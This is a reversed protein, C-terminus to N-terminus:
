NRLEIRLHSISFKQGGRSGHVTFGFTSPVDDTVITNWEVGPLPSYRDTDANYEMQFAWPEKRLLTKQWSQEHRHLRAEGNQSMDYVLLIPDRLAQSHAVIEFWPLGVAEVTGSVVAHHLGVPFFVETADIWGNAANYGPYNWVLKDGEVAWWGGRDLGRCSKRSFEAFVDLAEQPSLDLKREKMLRRGLNLARRCRDVEAIEDPDAPQLLGLTTEADNLRLEALALRVSALRESDTRCLAAHVRDRLLAYHVDQHAFVSRDYDTVIRPPSRGVDIPDQPQVDEVEIDLRDFAAAAEAFHGGLAAHIAFYNVAYRQVEKDPQRQAGAYFDKLLEWRVPSKFDRFKFARNQRDSM